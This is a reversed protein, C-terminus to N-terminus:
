IEVSSPYPIIEYFEDEEKLSLSPRMADEIIELGM